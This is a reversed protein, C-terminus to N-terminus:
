IPVIKYQVKYGLAKLIRKLEPFSFISVDYRGILVYYTNRRNIGIDDALSPSHNRYKDYAYQLFMENIFGLNVSSYFDHVLTERQRYKRERM